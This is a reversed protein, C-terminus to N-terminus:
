IEIMTKNENYTIMQGPDLQLLGTSIASFESIKIMVKQEYHYIVM